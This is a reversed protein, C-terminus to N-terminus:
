THKHTIKRHYKIKNLCFTLRFDLPVFDESKSKDECKMKTFCFAVEEGATIQLEQIDFVGPQTYAYYLDWTRRYADIGISQFPPPVDYMVIVDSHHALITDIANNRVATAWNEVLQRIQTENANKDSAMFIIKIKEFSASM